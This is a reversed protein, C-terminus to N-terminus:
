NANNKVVDAVSLLKSSIKLNAQRAADLNVQVRVKRDRLAFNIVGGKDLFDDSEGVTLLNTGKLIELIASLRRREADGIFLIHCGASETESNIVKVVVARGSAPRNQIAKRLAESIKSEGLCGLVIPSNTNTLAEQSWEVYKPFNLLFAAKVEYDPAKTQAWGASSMALWVLSALLLRITNLARM